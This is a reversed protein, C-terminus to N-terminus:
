SIRQPIDLIFTTRSDSAIPSLDQIISEVLSWLDFERKEVKPSNGLQLNADDQLVRKILADLRGINRRLTSVSLDFLETKLDDSLSRELTTIALSVAQLPTRLDHVVFSLHEERRKQLELSMHTAYAKVSQAIANDFVTNVIRSSQNTLPLNYRDALEKEHSEIL